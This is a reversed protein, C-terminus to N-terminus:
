DPLVRVALLAIDDAPRQVVELVADRFERLPASAFRSAHAALNAIRADLAETRTEVLGDTYLLVTAERPLDAYGDTRQAVTGVGLPPDVPKSLVCAPGDPYVIIPPPHGANAWCMERPGGDVGPRVVALTLSAFTTVGLQTVLRDLRGVVDAPTSESECALARVMNRLQGMAAAARIDHGVVDGIVLALSGNPLQFADYWDGGVEAASIAPRYTVEIDYGDAHPADALLSRQLTEALHQTSAHREARLLSQACLSAIAAAEDQDDDDFPGPTERSIGLTGVYKGGSELPLLCVAGAEPTLKQLGPLQQAVEDPSQLWQAAAIRRPTELEAMREALSGFGYAPEAGRLGDLVPGALLDNDAILTLWAGQAHLAVMADRAALAAVQEPEVAASLAAALKHLRRSRESARREAAAVEVLQRHAQEHQVAIAVTRTVQEILQQDSPGPVRPVRYYIAFTALLRGDAAFVPTSWCSRLGAALAPASWDAWLPDTAIDEVVVQARRFAATGCSGVAPGIRVGDIAANYEDPLSPASGHLLHQGDDSLLLVSGLAGHESHTEVMEIVAELVDPLPANE